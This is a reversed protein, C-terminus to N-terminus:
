IEKFATITMTQNHLEVRAGKTFPAIEGYSYFGTMMTNKGLVDQVTEVEEETRQGLILKRGVCSILIALDPSEKVMSKGTNEAADHAGDVLRDFNAKMLRAFSGEPMDGAFVMSQDKENVSLITRVLAKEHENTKIDLPFLLASAPLESAKEGLYRKYLELAPKGDMEYLINGKSKTIIRTPGFPDWGGQSSYGIKISDGYFGIAAITGTEAKNDWLVFTEQFRSGDGALGGTISVTEPLHKTMGNVLESGNVNQGDSLVFIHALDKTKFFQALKKGASFSDLPDNIKVSTGQIATKNFQIATLCLSDDLVSTGCIEGATSCGLFQAKPYANYIYDFETRNKLLQTAGFILVLHVTDGLKGPKDPKWGETSTWHCQEIRM